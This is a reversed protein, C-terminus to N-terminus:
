PAVYPAGPTPSDTDAWDAATDTDSTLQTRALSHGDHSAPLPLDFVSTDTGYSMADVVADGDRLTLEDGGNALGNGIASGLVAVPVGAPITWYSVTTDSPTILAFGGAPIVTGDPIADSAHNDTLTWGSVDVDAATGNYLEVWENAYGSAATEVGHAADVDYYVESIVVHGIEPPPEPAPAQCGPVSAVARFQRELALLRKCLRAHAAELQVAVHKLIPAASPVSLPAPIRPLPVTRAYACPAAFMAAALLASCLTTKM